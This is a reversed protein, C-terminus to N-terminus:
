NGAGTRIRASLGLNFLLRTVLLPFIIVIDFLFAVSRMLMKLGSMIVGVANLLKRELWEGNNM